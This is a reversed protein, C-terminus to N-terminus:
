NKWEKDFVHQRIETLLDNIKPLAIPCHGIDVIQRYDEKARLGLGKSTSIFEMRNRYAFEDGFFVKIDSVSFKRLLNLINEKKKQLQLEYSLHQLTCGSCSEFYPCVAM